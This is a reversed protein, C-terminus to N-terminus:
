AAGQLRREIEFVEISKFILENLAVMRNWDNEDKMFTDSKFAQWGAVLISRLNPIQSGPVGLEFREVMVQSNDNEHDGMKAECLKFAACWVQEAIRQTAKDAIRLLVREKDLIDPPSQEDFKEVFGPEAEIKLWAAAKGLIRARDRLGPYDCVRKEGFVPSLLYCLCDLYSSGFLFLGVFDCFLEEIQGMTWEHAISWADQADFNRLNAKKIEPNQSHFEKWFKGAILKLVQDRAVNQFIDGQKTKRWLTHGLEHGVAPLVLANSSESAPLGVIVCNVLHTNQPYTFPVYHWEFSLILYTDEGILSQAIVLLPGHGEFANRINASNTILGALDLAESVADVARLQQSRIIADHAPQCLASTLDVLADNLFHTLEDLARRADDHPFEISGVEGLLALTAEVKQVAYNIIRM